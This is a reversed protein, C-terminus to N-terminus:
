RTLVGEMREGSFPNALRWAEGEHREWVWGAAPPQGDLCRVLQFWGVRVPPAGRGAHRRNETVSHIQWGTSDSQATLFPLGAKSIQLWCRGDRHTEIHFEAILEPAGGRSQWVVQGERSQWGPESLDLPAFIPATRCGALALGVLTAMLARCTM